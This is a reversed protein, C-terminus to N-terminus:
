CRRASPKTGPVPEQPDQGAAEAGLPALLQRDGRRVCHDASQHESRRSARAQPRAALRVLGLRFGEIVTNAITDEVAASLALETRLESAIERITNAGTCLRLLRGVAPSLAILRPHSPDPRPIVAACSPRASASLPVKQADRAALLESVDYDFRELRLGPVITPCLDLLEHDLPAKGEVELRFLGAEGADVMESAEAQGLTGTVLLELRVTEVLM